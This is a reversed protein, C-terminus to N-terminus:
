TRSPINAYTQKITPGQQEVTVASAPAATPRSQQASASAAVASLNAALLTLSHKARNIM